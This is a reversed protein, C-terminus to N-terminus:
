ALTSYRALKLHLKLMLEYAKALNKVKLVYFLRPQGPSFSIFVPDLSQASLYERLKDAVLRFETYVVGEQGTYHIKIWDTM